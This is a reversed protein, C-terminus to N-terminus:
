RTPSSRYRTCSPWSQPKRPFKSLAPAAANTCAAAHSRRRWARRLRSACVSRCSVSAGCQDSSVTTHSRPIAMPVLKGDAATRVGPETRATRRAGRRRNTGDHRLYAAQFQQARPPARGATDRPPIRPGTEPGRRAAVRQARRCGHWRSPYWALKYPPLPRRRQSAGVGARAARAAPADRRGHRRAQPVAEAPPSPVTRSTRCTALRPGRKVAEKDSSQFHSM